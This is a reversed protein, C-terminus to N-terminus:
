TRHYIDELRTIDDEGLYSGNQVEILEVPEIGSNELRHVAGIPIFIHEDKGYLGVEDDVTVTAIGRVVVWHESRFRHKQLSLRGQPQVIIRKVQFGAGADVVQYSGWPRHVSSHTEAQTCGKTRLLEVIQKVEGARSRDVVLVADRSAVVVLDDVGM